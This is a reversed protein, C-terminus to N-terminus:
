YGEAKDKEHRQGTKGKWEKEQVLQSYITLVTLKKLVPKCSLSTICIYTCCVLFSYILSENESALSSRELEWRPLYSMISVMFNSMLIGWPAPFKPKEHGKWMEQNQRPLYTSYLTINYEFSTVIRFLNSHRKFKKRYLLPTHPCYNISLSAWWFYTQFLFALPNSFQM